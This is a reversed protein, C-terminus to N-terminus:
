RWNKYDDEIAQYFPRLWPIVDNVQGCDDVRIEILWYGTMALLSKGRMWPTQAQICGTQFIHINRYVPLYELKHFHGMALINPKTGGEMSEAIKQSRYSISYSSGGGPHMLEMTCDDTMKILATDQGLYNMDPRQDAIKPGLDIGAKKIFSHDHNGTIFHTTMGERKPYVRVVEEIFQDGGHIYCEHEHGQRMGWGETIDGAHYIETIGEREFFDYADHLHTIQTYKSGIHTDSLLGFRIIKDGKWDLELTQKEALPVKSLSVKDNIRMLQYGEDELDDLMADLVRDTVNLAALLSERSVPRKILDTLCPTEKKPPPRNRNIYEPKNKLYDRVEHRTKGLIRGIEAPTKDKCLELARVKESKTLAM